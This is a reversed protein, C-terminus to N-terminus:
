YQPENERRAEDRERKQELERQRRSEQGLGAGRMLLGVLAGAGVIAMGVLFGVPQAMVTCIGAVCFGAFAIIVGTWAAPTHGHHSNAM